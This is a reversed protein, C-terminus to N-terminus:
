KTKSAIKYVKVLKGKGEPYFKSMFKKHHVALEKDSFLPSHSKTVYVIRWGLLKRPRQVLKWDADVEDLRTYIENEFTKRYVLVYDVGIATIIVQHHRKNELVDGVRWDNRICTKRGNM